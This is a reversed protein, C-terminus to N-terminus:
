VTERSVVSAYTMVPPPTKTMHGGAILRVKRRLGDLKIDWIIHCKMFQYGPPPDVGDDLIKFAVRVNTMDKALADMWLTNGNLHDLEKARQVTDPIRMFYRKKVAM